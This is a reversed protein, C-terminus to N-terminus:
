PTKDKNDTSKKGPEQASEGSNEDPVPMEKEDNKEFMNEQGPTREEDDRKGLHSNFLHTLIFSANVDTNTDTTLLTRSELSFEYNFNGILEGQLNLGYLIGNNTVSRYVFYEYGAYVNFNFVWLPTMGFNLRASMQSYVGKQQGLLDIGAEGNGKEFIKRRMIQLQGIYGAKQLSYTYGGRLNFLWADDDSKLSLRYFGQQYDEKIYQNLWFFLTESKMYGLTHIIKSSMYFSNELLAYDFTKYPLTYMLGARVFSDRNFLSYKKTAELQGQHFIARGAGFGANYQVKFHDANKNSYETYAGARWPAYYYDRYGSTEVPVMGGVVGFLWGKDPDPTFAVNAGDLRQVPLLNMPNIRGASIYWHNLMPKKNEVYGYRLDALYRKTIFIGKGKFLGRFMWQDDGINQLRADLFYYGVLYVPQFGFSVKEAGPRIGATLDLYSSLQMIQLINLDAARLSVSGFLFCGILCVKKM